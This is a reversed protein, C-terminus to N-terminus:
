VKKLFKTLLVIQMGNVRADIQEPNNTLRINKVLTGRKATFGAGKVDLDKILTVADGEVLLTGNSDKVISSENSKTLEEFLAAEAWGREDDELFIQELLDSAWAEKRRHHLIRYSLIKVAPTESWIAENLIEWHGSDSFDIAQIGQQCKQCVLVSSSAAGFNPSGPLNYPSLDEAHHCLECTSSRLKLETILM